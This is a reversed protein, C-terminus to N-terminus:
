HRLRLALLVVPRIISWWDLLPRIKSYSRGGPPYTKSAPVESTRYGLTLVKYHLYYELEYHDLWPQAIDIRPDDLLALRYARFGNTVDTCRTATLVRFVLGYGKIMLHRGPPLNRHSGGALFRSGQVYDDGERLHAILRPAEAPDDKGNAAMVVVAWHGRSRAAELGARIAAGTGRRGGIPIVTAGADAALRPGNDTSGDDVVFTEAVEPPMCRVLAAITSEENYLPLVAAVTGQTAM